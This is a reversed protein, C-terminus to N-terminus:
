DLQTGFPHLLQLYQFQVVFPFLSAKKQHITLPLPYYPHPYQHCRLPPFRAEGRVEGHRNSINSTLSIIFDGFISIFTPAKPQWYQCHNPIPNVLLDGFLKRM